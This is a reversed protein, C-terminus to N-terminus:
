ININQRNTCALQDRLLTLLWKRKPTLRGTRVPTGSHGVYILMYNSKGFRDSVMKGAPDTNDGM